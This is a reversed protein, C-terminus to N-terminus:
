GSNGEPAVRVRVPTEGRMVDLTLGDVGANMETHLSGPVLEQVPRGNVRIVIDGPELGAARFAGNASRPSLRYGTLQGSRSEPRFETDQFVQSATLTAPPSGTMSEPNAAVDSAMSPAAAGDPTILSSAHTRSSMTLREIQGGHRLIAQDPTVTYLVVGPMFEEGIAVRRQTGDPLVLIGAGFEDGDAARIGALKLNLTTEAAGAFQAQGSVTPNFADFERLIDLDLQGMAPSGQDALPPLGAPATGVADAPAVLLWVLRAMMVGSVIVIAAELVTKGAAPILALSRGSATESLRAFREFMLSNSGTFDSAQTNGASYLPNLSTKFATDCNNALGQKCLLM